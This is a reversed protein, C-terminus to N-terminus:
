CIRLYIWMAMRRLWLTASLLVIINRNGLLSAGRVVWPAHETTDRADCKESKGLSVHAHVLGRVCLHCGKLASKGRWYLRIGATPSPREPWWPWPRLRNSALLRRRKTSDRAIRGGRFTRSWFGHGHAMPLAGRRTAPPKAPSQRDGVAPQPLGIASVGGLRRGVLRGWRRRAPAPAVSPLGVHCTSM